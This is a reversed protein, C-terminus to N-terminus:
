LTLAPKGLPHANSNCVSALRDIEIVEEPPDRTGSEELWLILESLGMEYQRVLALDENIEVTAPDFYTVTKVVYKDSVRFRVEGIAEDLHCLCYAQLSNFHEDKAIM